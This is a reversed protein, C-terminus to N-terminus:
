ATATRRRRGLLLTGLALLGAATPEPVAAVNGKYTASGSESFGDTVSGTSFSETFSTDAFGGNPTDFADAFTNTNFYPSAAGGTVDLFGSASGGSFSTPRSATPITEVLSDGSADEVSATETLFPTGSEVAAIDGAVSGTSISTGAPLV